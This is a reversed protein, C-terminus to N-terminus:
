TIGRMSGDIWRDMTKTLEPTELLPASNAFAYVGTMGNRELADILREAISNATYGRPYEAHPWKPLDDITFAVKM